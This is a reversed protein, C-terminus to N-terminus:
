PTEAAEVCVRGRGQAKARYLVEDAKLLWDEITLGPQWQALGISVGLKKGGAGIGLDRIGRRLREALVAASSLDTEPLVLLFEDGGMRVLLDSNRVMTSLLRAVRRLVRDGEAHGMTDNIQKFHDLDMCALTIPHGHRRASEVMSGIREEFVRRNELGTLADRRAQEFLSEYQLARELPEALIEVARDLIEKEDASLTEGRRLFIIQGVDDRFKLQWRCVFFGDEACCDGDEVLGDLCRRAMEQIKRREPGHSSCLLHERTGCASRYAVLDHEVLPMLWVSFAEMMSQLDTASALRSQLKNVMVLWETQRRYHDLQVLLTDVNVTAVRNDTVSVAANM